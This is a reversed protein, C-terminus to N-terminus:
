TRGTLQVPPIRDAGAVSRDKAHLARTPIPVPELGPALRTIDFGYWVARRARVCQAVDLDRPRNTPNEPAIHRTEQRTEQGVRCM